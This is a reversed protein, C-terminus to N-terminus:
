FISFLGKVFSLMWEYHFDRPITSNFLDSKLIIFVIYLIDFMFATTNGRFHTDVVM